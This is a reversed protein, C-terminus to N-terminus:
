KIKEDILAKYTAQRDKYKQIALSDTKGALFDNFANSLDAILDLTDNKEEIANRINAKTQSVKVIVKKATGLDETIVERTHKKM